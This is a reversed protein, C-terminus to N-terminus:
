DSFDFAHIYESMVLQFHAEDALNKFNIIYEFSHLEKPGYHTSSLQVDIGRNKIYEKFYITSTDSLVDDLVFYMKTKIKGAYIKEILLGEDFNDVTFSSPSSM